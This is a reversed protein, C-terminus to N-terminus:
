MERLSNWAKSLAISEQKEQELLNGFLEKVEELDGTEQLHRLLGQIFEDARSGLQYIESTNMDLPVAGEMEQFFADPDKEYPYQIWTFSIRDPAEVEYHQLAELVNKERNELLELLMRAREDTAGHRLRCYLQSMREHIDILSDIVQQVNEYGPYHTM